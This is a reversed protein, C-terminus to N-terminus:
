CLSCSHLLSIYCQFLFVVCCVVVIFCWYIFGHVLYIVHFFYSIAKSTEQNNALIIIDYVTYTICRLCWWDDGYKPFTHFAATGTSVQGSVSAGYIVLSIIWKSILHPQMIISLIHIKIKKEAWSILDLIRMRNKM